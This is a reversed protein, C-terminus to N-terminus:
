FAGVPHDSKLVRFHKFLTPKLARYHELLAVPDVDLNGLFYRNNTQIDNNLIHEKEFGKNLYINKKVSYMLTKNQFHGYSQIKSSLIM